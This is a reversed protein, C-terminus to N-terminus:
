RETSEKIAVLAASAAAEIDAILDEHALAAFNYAGRKFLAGHEVAYRVFQSEVSADEFILRWMQDIGGVTIGALGSAVVAREVAARMQAGITALSACVDEKEHWDLVALAAALGTSEGALTSSIWTRSAASMVDARGVVASLAYGNAMAKGFAAIDPEIGSLESYGGPKLRFGTKIEDFVLVAGLDTALQRATSIWADSPMREVV